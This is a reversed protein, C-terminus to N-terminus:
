LCSESASCWECFWATAIASALVCVPVLFTGCDFSLIQLLPPPSSESRLLRYHPYSRNVERPVEEELLAM